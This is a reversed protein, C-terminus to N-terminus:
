KEIYVHGLNVIKKGNWQGADQTKVCFVNLTLPGKYLIDQM